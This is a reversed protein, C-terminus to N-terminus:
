PLLMIKQPAGVPQGAVLLRYVYQGAPLGQLSVTQTIPGDQVAVPMTLGVRGTLLNTFSLEATAAGAPLQCSIRVETYAPNPYAAGLALAAEPTSKPRSIRRAQSLRATPQPLPYRPYFYRLWQGAREAVPTGSWALARLATSDASVTAQAIPQTMNGITWISTQYIDVLHNDRIQVWSVDSRNNVIGYLAHDISNNIIQTADAGQMGAPTIQLAQYTYLQAIASTKDYPYHMQPPDSTFSCNQILSPLGRGYGSNSRYGLDRVHTLNNAFASGTLSYTPTDGTQNDRSVDVACYAHSISSGNGASLQAQSGSIGQATTAPGISSNLVVGRWIPCTAVAGAATLTAGDLVLRANTGVTITSGAVSRSFGWGRIAQRSANGDIYFTTGATLMYLLDGLVRYTGGGSLTTMQGATGLLNNAPVNVPPTCTSSTQAM